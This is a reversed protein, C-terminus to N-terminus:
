AARVTATWPGRSRVNLYGVPSAPFLVSSQTLPATEASNLLRGGNAGYEDTPATWYNYTSPEGTAGVTPATTEVTVEVPGGFAVPGICDADFGEVTLPPADGGTPVGPQEVVAEWEGDGYPGGAHTVDLFYDGPEFHTAFRFRYIGPDDELRGERFLENVALTQPPLTEGTADLARVIFNSNHMGTYDFTLSVVVPGGLAAFRDSRGAGSGASRVTEGRLDGAAEGATTSEEGGTPTAGASEPRDTATPPATTGETATREGGSAGTSGGSTCGALVGVSAATAGLFTRRQM